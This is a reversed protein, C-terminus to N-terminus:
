QANWEDFTMVTANDITIDDYQTPLDRLYTRYNRYLTKTASDFPADALQSFDTSAILKDRESRLKDWEQEKDESETIVYDEKILLETYPEFYGQDEPGLGEEPEILRSDINRGILEEPISDSRLWRQKLGFSNKNIQKVKWNDREIQTEFSASFNRGDVENLINIKYM